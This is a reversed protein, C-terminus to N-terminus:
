AAMKPVTASMPTAILRRRCFIAFVESPPALLVARGESFIRQFNGSGALSPHVVGAQGVGWVLCFAMGGAPLGARVPPSKREGTNKSLIVFNVGGESNMACFSAYVAFTLAYFWGKAVKTAKQSCDTARM